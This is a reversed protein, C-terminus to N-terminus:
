LEQSLPRNHNFKVLLGLFKGLSDSDGNDSHMVTYKDIVELFQGTILSFIILGGLFISCIILRELNSKPHYDGFGVTSLTTLAYYQMAVSNEMSTKQTM